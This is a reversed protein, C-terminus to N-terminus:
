APAARATARAAGGADPGKSSPSSSPQPLPEDSSSIGGADPKGSAPAAPQGPVAGWLAAAVPLSVSPVALWSYSVVASLPTAGPDGQVGTPM